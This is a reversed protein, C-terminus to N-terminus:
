LCKNNDLKHIFIYRNIQVFHHCYVPHFLFLIMTIQSQVQTVIDCRILECVVKQTNLMIKLINIKISSIKLKKKNMQMNVIKRQTATQIKNLPYQTLSQQYSFLATLHNGNIHPCIGLIEWSIDKLVDSIYICGRIMISLSGYNMQLQM